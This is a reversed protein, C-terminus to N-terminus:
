GIIVAQFQRGGVTYTIVLEPRNSAAERSNFIYADDSETDAKVLFGNNAFAGSIMEQVASPTLSFEKYADLTESASMARSGIGTQECDNAGFGGATQWNNGTSYINWTVQDEVWARKLRYVRFTRANSSRDATVYLRLMADSVVANVPIGSLDFKLLSRRVASSEDNREGITLQSGTGANTTPTASNISADASPNLTATTM